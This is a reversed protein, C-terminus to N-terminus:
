RFGERSFPHYAAACVIEAESLSQVTYLEFCRFVHDIVELNVKDFRTGNKRRKTKMRYLLNM